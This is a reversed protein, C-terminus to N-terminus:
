SSLDRAGRQDMLNAILMMAGERFWGGAVAARHIARRRKLAAKGGISVSRESM